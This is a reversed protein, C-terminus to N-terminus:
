GAEEGLGHQAYGTIISNWMVIDKPSFRDFVWKAKVLDGCKIYMTILASSVYVDSDFQSRLMQAHVQRGHDLSALSACVSLISILSPFNARIGQRQMLAFLDLAELECGKREYVKIMASWTGDDKERMQEFVKRANFLEGNHGFGLIMANCAIVSKIPMADFLEAAEVIRGCQTYGMLM